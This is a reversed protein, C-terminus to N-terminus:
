RSPGSRPGAPPRWRQLSQSIGAAVARLMEAPATGMWRAIDDQVDWRLNKMMWSAVEALAADGEIAVEPREGRLAQRAMSLPDTLKVTLVLGNNVPTLTTDVKDNVEVAEFLGAPTIVFRWASPPESQAPLARALFGPLPPQFSSSWRIDITRGVHPQLKAVAVPESAVIHNLLLTLRPLALQSIWSLPHSAMARNYPGGPLGKPVGDGGTFGLDTTM